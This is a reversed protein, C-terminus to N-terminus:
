RLLVVAPSWFFDLSDILILNRPPVATNLTSIGNDSYYRKM